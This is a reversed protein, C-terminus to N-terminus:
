RTAVITGGGGPVPKSGYTTPLTFTLSDPMCDPPLDGSTFFVGESGVTNGWQPVGYPGAPCGGGGLPAWTRLQLRWRTPAGFSPCELRLVYQVPTNPSYSACGNSVSSLGLITYSSVWIEAFQDILPDSTARTMILPGNDDEIHWISPVPGSCACAPCVFGSALSLTFTTQADAGGAGCVLTASTSLAAYGLTPSISVDYSGAPVEFRCINAITANVVAGTGPGAAAVSVAPVSTYNSGFAVLKVNAIKGAVVDFTGTAGSGGGGSFGLAYGTGDTYGSGAAALTLGVVSGTTTATAVPTGGRSLTVVMGTRPAGCGNVRIVWGCSCGCCGPVFRM